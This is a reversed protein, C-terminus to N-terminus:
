KSSESPNVPETEEDNLFYKGILTPVVVCAIAIYPVFINEPLFKYISLFIGCVLFIIKHSIKDLFIGTTFIYGGIVLFMATSILNKTQDSYDAFWASIKAILVIIAVIM